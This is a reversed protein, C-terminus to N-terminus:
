RIGRRRNTENITFILHEGSVSTTLQMNGMGGAGSLIDKTQRHNFVRAKGTNILEAGAEGVLALGGSHMGGKEFAPFSAFLAKIGAIGVAAMALGPLGFKANSAAQGALAEILLANVIQQIGNVVTTLFGAFANKQGTFMGGLANGLSTFAGAAIIASESASMGFMTFAKAAENTKLAVTEVKTGVDENFVADMNGFSTNQNTTPTPNFQLQLGTSNITETIKEAVKTAQETVADMSILQIPEKTMVAQIGERLNEGTEKAFEMTNDIVNQMAEKYIAPIKDFEMRFVAGILKGANSFTDMINKGVLKVLNWFQKFQFVINQIVIRFLVSENYLKIFYNIIDVTGKMIGRLGIVAIDILDAKLETWFTSSQGFMKVWIKNLDENAKTLHIQAKVTENANETMEKFSQNANGLMKVFRVGADEGAGGFVDALVMGVEKSDDKFNQLRSSVMQIAQFTTISGNAIQRQMESSSIGIAALADKTAPTMERIRLGAEKIADVGKDSYIGENISQTAIAFFQDANAGASAFQAPYEKLIDLFEESGTQAYGDRIMDLAQPLGIGLEKSVARASELLKEFPINLTQSIARAKATADVLNQGELGLNRLQDTAKGIEQSFNFVERAAGIIATAAFAGKILNGIQSVGKSFKSIHSNAQALGQKLEATNTAINFLLDTIIQGGKGAM